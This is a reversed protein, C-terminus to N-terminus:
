EVGTGTRRRGMEQVWSPHSHRVRVTELLAEFFTWGFTRIM